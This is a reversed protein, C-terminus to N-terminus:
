TRVYPRDVLCAYLSPRNNDAESFLLLGFTSGFSSSRVFWSLSTMLAFLIVPNGSSLLLLVTHVFHLSKRRFQNSKIPTIIFCHFVFFTLQLYEENRKFPWDPLREGTASSYTSPQDLYPKRERERGVLHKPDPEAPDWIDVRTQRWLRLVALPFNNPYKTPWFYSIHPLRITLIQHLKWFIRRGKSWTHRIHAATSAHGGGEPGLWFFAYLFWKVYVSM